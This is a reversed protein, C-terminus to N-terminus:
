PNQTRQRLIEVAERRTRAGVKTLISSVHHDVTRVSLVLKTAIEANTAHQALLGYVDVERDTLGSPHKARRPRRRPPPRTGLDRLTRRTLDAAVAGLEDLIRLGDLMPEIRGSDALALAREYPAGRHQWADAEAQWDGRLGAAWPEPCGPFAEVPLGARALYRLLEGRMYAWGAGELHPLLEDAVQGARDPRGALWAWEVLAIGPLVVPARRRSAHGWAQELVDVAHDRGRRALLRAYGPLAQLNFARTDIDQESLARWGSEAADWEGYHAQVAYRQADLLKAHKWLGHEAAHSIGADLCPGLDAWRGTGRLVDCLNVYARAAAEHHAHDTAMRVAARLASEGDDFLVARSLGVYNLCLSELDTRGARHALRQAEELVPLADAPRATLTLLAGRDTAAAARAADDGTDDLVEVAREILQEAEATRGAALAHRSLRLVATGLAVPDPLREYRAVADRGAVMAEAIRDAQHLEWGYGDILEAQEALPLRDVHQIATEFHTLAQRHSGQAAARRAARPAVEAITAADGAQVAHHALRELDIDPMQQLAQVVLLNFTRRRLQPLSAQLARRALEHRFALGTHHVALIGREEAEALEDMRDPLLEEILSFDVVGPVVSLQELVAVGHADLQHIRSLVADAVSAPLVDPPAALTETVYFPNGGTLAHLNVDDRGAAAALAAVATTTLPKLALRICATGTLAGLLRRLSPNARAEADRLTLVLVAPLRDIRRGLHSLVDLTADDAWHVDEVVMITPAQASLESIVAEFVAAPTASDLADALPGASGQTAERLPALPRSALLDDCAGVLVRGAPDGSALFTRVLSTKGIGAEGTVLVVSGRGQVAAQVATGLTELQEQRELLEVAM